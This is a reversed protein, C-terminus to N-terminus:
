KTEKPENGLFKNMDRKMFANFMRTADGKSAMKSGALPKSDFAGDNELAYLYLLHEYAQCYKQIRALHEQTVVPNETRIMIRGSNWDFGHDVAIVVSNPTGGIGPQSLTVVVEHDDPLQKLADQLKKNNM